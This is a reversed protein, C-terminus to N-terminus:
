LGLLIRVVNQLERLDLDFGNAAGAPIGGPVGNFLEPAPIHIQYNQIGPNNCPNDGFGVGTIAHHHIGIDELVTLTPHGLPATGFSTVTIPIVPIPSTRLYLLALMAITGNQRPPFLKIALYIQITTQPSFYGVALQHLSRITESNGIEVVMTPYPLGLSNCSSGAPPRPRGIPRISIDATYMSNPGIILDDENGGILQNNWALILSTIRTAVVGHPTLPVEYAIVKENVLRINVPLKPESERYKQYSKLSINEAIIIEGTKTNVDTEVEMDDEQWFALLRVRASDLLDKAPQFKKVKHTSMVLPRTLVVTATPNTTESHLAQENVVAQRSHAVYPRYNSSTSLACM